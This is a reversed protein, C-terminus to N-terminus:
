SMVIVSSLTAELYSVSRAYVDFEGLQLLVAKFMAVTMAVANAIHFPKDTMVFVSDGM